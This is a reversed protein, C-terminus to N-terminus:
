FTRGSFKDRGIPIISIDLPNIQTQMGPTDLHESYNKCYGDLIRCCACVDYKLLKESMSERDKESEGKAERERVM